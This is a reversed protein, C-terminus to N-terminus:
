IITTLQLVNERMGDNLKGIEELGSTLTQQGQELDDILDPFNGGSMKVSEVKGM